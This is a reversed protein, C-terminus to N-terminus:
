LTLLILPREELPPEAKITLADRFAKELESFRDREDSQTLHLIALLEGAVIRVGCKVRLEIGVAFDITDEKRERGAGMKM